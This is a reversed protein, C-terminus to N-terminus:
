YCPGPRLVNEDLRQISCRPMDVSYQKNHSFVLFFLSTFGVVATSLEEFSGYIMALKVGGFMTPMPTVRRTSAGGEV